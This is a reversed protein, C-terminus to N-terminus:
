DGEENTSAILAEYASILTDLTARVEALAREQAQERTVVGVLHHTNINLVNCHMVWEGKYHIHSSTIVIRLAGSKAEFTTPTRAKDYQAYSTVDKWM